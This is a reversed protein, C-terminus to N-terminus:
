YFREVTYRQDTPIAGLELTPDYLIEEGDIIVGNWAHYYNKGVYGIVLKTPVGQTRLICASLAALDQCIGMGSEYCGDIDPLMGSKVKKAKDFDYTYRSKMYERVAELKEKAGSLGGCIEEGLAVVPTDPTYSVYQNPCLFAAYESSLEAEVSVKGDQAYKKGSANRFLSCEYTGSGMQLPFVEYEGEGNLDYTLTQGDKAIRLKLRKDSKEAKAMIYGDQAHSSDVTLAGSTESKSGSAEPWIAGGAAFAAAGIGLLCVMLLFALLRRRLGLNKQMDAKGRYPEYLGSM